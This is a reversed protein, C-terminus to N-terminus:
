RSDNGKIQGLWTSSFYEAPPTMHYQQIKYLLTRYSVKLLRAAAKRNWRTQELATAIANRETEGKVSQVLFRLGQDDSEVAEPLKGNKERPTPLTVRDRAADRHQRLERLASEEDGGVVLLRKVFAQLEALNGPWSHAQCADLVTPSLSKALLGYRRAMQNMCYGLLLPIEEKRQRLPPVHVTFASLHYYFDERLKKDALCQELNGTATGMIRVDVDVATHGGPRTFQKDQLVQLLRSQLDGPIEPVEELLITGKESLEFNGDRGRLSEGSAASASGFLQRELLDAPLAACNMTRFRFGSRVSLQHILRGTTEKGSGSEGVILVPVDVQALLEAQARLKRMIPSSAVFFTDEGIQQVKEDPADGQLRGGALALHHVIASEIAQEDLPRLLYDTAGLRLAEVKRAADDPHALLLVPVEPRVRRLWRLAYLGDADGRAVDLLVLDPASGSQVRELAECGSGTLEVEWANAEGAAWIASLAAPERSVILLRAAGALGPVARRSFERTAM